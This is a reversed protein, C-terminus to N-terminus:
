LCSDMHSQPMIVHGSRARSGCNQQVLSVLLGKV